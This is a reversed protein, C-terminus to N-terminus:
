VGGNSLILAIIAGVITGIVTTIICSIITKKYHDYKKVPEERLARVDAKLEKQDESFTGITQTLRDVSLTLTNIAKTQEECNSLRRKLDEIDHHFDNHELLLKNYEEQTLPHM